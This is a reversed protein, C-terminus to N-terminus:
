GNEKIQCVYGFLFISAFMVGTIVCPFLFRCFDLQQSVFRVFNNRTDWTLCTLLIHGLSINEKQPSFVPHQLNLILFSEALYM